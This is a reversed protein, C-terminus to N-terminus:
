GARSGTLGDALLDAVGAADVGLCVRANPDGFLGEFDAITAGATVRGETEIEVFLHETTFLEPRMAYAVAPVDNFHVGFGNDTARRFRRYADEIFRSADVLFRGPLGGDAAIRELHKHTIVTPRCVDLGVQVIPAGSRYVFDAAEPDNYMNASAAATVNGWTLCAGGMVILERINAAIAPEADLAHAVNTLPGLAILTIEGPAEMVRSVIAEAASGPSAAGSPPAVAIGGFGNDGHIHKAYRPERKLPAAAGAYVPVDNRGALELIALANRTCQELEVNGYVTTLADVRLESSRLALFIAAADDIGPDTDIIVRKADTM